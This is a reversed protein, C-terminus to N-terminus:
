IERAFFGHLKEGREQRRDSLARPRAVICARTGKHATGLRREEAPTFGVRCSESWGTAIPAATATVISGFGEICLAAVAAGRAPLGYRSHVGLLGRFDYHPLRGPLPIPFASRSPLALSGAGRTGGPYHRRCTQVLLARAVRSVGPPPHTVWGSARSPWAPGRPSDSLDM